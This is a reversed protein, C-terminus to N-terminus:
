STKIFHDRDTLKMLNFIDIIGGFVNEQESDM